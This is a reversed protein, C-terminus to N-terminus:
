VHYNKSQKIGDRIAKLYYKLYDAKNDKVFILLLQHFFNTFMLKATLIKPIYPMKWMFFLNRIRYYRRFGSHIPIKFNFISITDDGISHKMIANKSMYIKYGKSLARFCWETDVYDIFFEERMMGIAKIAKTSILSGSSILCSVEIPQTIETVNIKRILGYKNFKLAPFYFGQKEDMFRPGIAAIEGGSLDDLDRFLNFIFDDYISSDQDFFLIQEAKKEIAHLIGINQAFAIGKNSSLKIIEVNELFIDKQNISNNDVCVINISHSNLIAILKKLKYLDPNYTVIVSFIKMLSGYIKLLNM